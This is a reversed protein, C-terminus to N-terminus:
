KNKKISIRKTHISDGTPLEEGTFLSLLYSKGVNGLGIM